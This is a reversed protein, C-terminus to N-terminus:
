QSLLSLKDNRILLIREPFVDKLKTEAISEKKNLSPLYGLTKNSTTCKPCYLLIHLAM